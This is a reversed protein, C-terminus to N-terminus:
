IRETWEASAYKTSLLEAARAMEPATPEGTELRLDLCDEFAVIFAQCAQEWAPPMGLVEELTTARQVLRKAAQLREDQNLFVLAQTIRRLDGALPLSGHQLVGAKRRAQASGILKKGAITIEYNSPIEFCVPNPLEGAADNSPPSNKPLAQASVGLCRLAELLAGALVRYSELVSGALRPEDQPGCVSYTLEDTHLIARGGTPRRVLDWGYESLAARDVDALPQAYGLSLCPPSWAYLRLTPPVIRAASFELIAEDLAMNLAGHAPHSRILRWADPPYSM